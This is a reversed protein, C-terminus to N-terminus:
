PLTTGLCLRATPPAGRRRQTDWADDTCVQAVDAFSNSIRSYVGWPVNDAFSDLVLRFGAERLTETLQASPRARDNIQASTSSILPGIFVRGRRRARNTGSAIVASYSLCCAVESPLSEGGIAAPLDLPGVAIPARPKADDLNYIKIQGAGATRSIEDSIYVGVANFTPVAVTWFRVLYDYILLAAAGPNGSQFHWTNIMRDEAMGSKHELQTQALVIAM